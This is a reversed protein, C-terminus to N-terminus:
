LEGEASRTEKEYATVILIPLGGAQPARGRVQVAAWLFGHGPRRELKISLVRSFPYRLRNHAYALIILPIKYRWPISKASRQYTFYFNKVRM